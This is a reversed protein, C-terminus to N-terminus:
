RKAPSAAGGIRLNRRYHPHKDAVTAGGYQRGQM